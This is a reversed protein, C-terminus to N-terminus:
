ITKEVIEFTDSNSIAHCEIDVRYKGKFVSTFSYTRLEPRTIKVRKILSYNPSNYSYIDIIFNYCPPTKSDMSWNITMKTTTLVIDVSNFSPEAFNPIDPQTITGTVSSPHSADYAKQDDVPLGSSLYFYNTMFKLVCTGATNGNAAGVNLSLTTKDLSLWKKAVKDYVYLNKFQSSREQGYTEEKYNEQFQFLPGTIYSDKLKTDFYTFLTWEKTSLNQYWQGVFTNGTSDDEWSCITYRYWVNASWNYTSIFNTGEGEGTFTGEKGEPYVRTARQKKSVGNEKYNIEWFSMIGKPGDGTVQLGGYALGGKADPHSEKFKSIDMNWQLLCWYTFKPTKTGIFDITFASFKKSTKSIDPNSGIYRGYTSLVNVLSILLILLILYKQLLM